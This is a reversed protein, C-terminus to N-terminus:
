VWWVQLLKLKLLQQELEFRQRKNQEELLLNNWFKGSTQCHEHFICTLYMILFTKYCSNETFIISNTLMTFLKLYKQKDELIHSSSKFKFTINVQIDNIYATQTFPPVYQKHLNKCRKQAINFHVKFNSFSISFKILTHDFTHFVPIYTTSHNCARDKIIEHSNFCIWM